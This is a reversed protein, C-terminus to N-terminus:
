EDSRRAEDNGTDDLLLVSGINTASGRVHVELGEQLVDIHAEV